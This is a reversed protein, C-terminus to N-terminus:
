TFNFSEKKKKIKLALGRRVNVSYVFKTTSMGGGNCHFPVVATRAAAICVHHSPFRGFFFFVFVTHAHGIQLTHVFLIKRPCVAADKTAYVRRRRPRAFLLKGRLNMRRSASRRGGARSDYSRSPTRSKTPPHDTPRDDTM